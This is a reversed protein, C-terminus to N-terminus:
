SITFRECQASDVCYIQAADPISQLHKLISRKQPKYPKLTREMSTREIGVLKSPKGLGDVNSSTSVATMNEKEQDEFQYRLSILTSAAEMELAGYTIIVLEPHSM